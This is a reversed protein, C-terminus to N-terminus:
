VLKETETYRVPGGGGVRARRGKGPGHTRKHTATAFIGGKCTCPTQELHLIGHLGDVIGCRCHTHVTGLADHNGALLLHGAAQQRGRLRRLFHAHDTIAPAHTHTYTSHHRCLPARSRCANATSAASTQAQNVWPGPVLQVVVHATRHRAQGGVGVGEDAGGPQVGLLVTVRSHVCARPDAPLVMWVATGRRAPGRGGGGWVCVCM